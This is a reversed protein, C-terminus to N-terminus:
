TNKGGDPTSGGTHHAPSIGAPRERDLKAQFEINHDEVTSCTLCGRQYAYGHQGCALWWDLPGNRGNRKWGPDCNDAM